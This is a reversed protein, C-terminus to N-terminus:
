EELPGSSSSCPRFDEDIEIDLEPLDYLNDIMYVRWRDSSLKALNPAFNAFIVVWPPNSLYMGAEYKGSFFFGDKLQEIASYSVYGEQSRQIGYFIHIPKTKCNVVAYKADVAKGSVYIATKRHNLCMSFAFSTKGTNGREDWIWYVLRDPPSQCLLTALKQQWLYLDKGALPDRIPVEPEPLNTINTYIEGVRTKAKMCYALAHTKSRCVEWHARPLLNKVTSFRCGSQFCAVGQLHPTGSEGQEEQFLFQINALEFQRALQAPREATYNNLTFFWNRARRNTNGVRQAM